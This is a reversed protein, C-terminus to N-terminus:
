QTLDRQISKVEPFWSIEPITEAAEIAKLGSNQFYTTRRERPKLHALANVASDGTLTLVRCRFVGSFPALVTLGM